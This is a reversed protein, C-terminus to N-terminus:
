IVGRDADQGFLDLAHRGAPDRLGKRRMLKRQAEPPLDTLRILNRGILVDIVDEIVRVFEADLADFAPAPAPSPSAGLLEALDPHGPELWDAAGPAAERHVSVIRGDPGRHVFPM